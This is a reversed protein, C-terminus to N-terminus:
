QPHRIDMKVHTFFSQTRWEGQDEAPTPYNTEPSGTQWALQLCQHAVAEEKATEGRIQWLFSKWHNSPFGLLIAGLQLHSLRPSGKLRSIHLIGASKSSAPLLWSQLPAEVPAAHNRGGQWGLTLRLEQTLAVTGRERQQGSRLESESQELQLLLVPLLIDDKEEEEEAVLSPCPFGLGLDGNRLPPLRCLVVLGPSYIPTHKTSGYFFPPFNSIDCSDLTLCISLLKHLPLLFYQFPANWLPTSLTISGIANNYQTTGM